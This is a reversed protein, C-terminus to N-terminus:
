IRVRYSSFKGTTKGTAFRSTNVPMINSKVDSMGIAKVDKEWWMTYHGVVGNAYTENSNSAKAINNEPSLADLLLEVYSTYGAENEIGNLKSTMRYLETFSSIGSENIYKMIKLSTNKQNETSSPMWKITTGETISKEYVAESFFGVEMWYGNTLDKPGYYVNEGYSFLGNSTINKQAFGSEVNKYHQLNQGNQLQQVQYATNYTTVLSSYLDFEFLDLGYYERRDNAEKLQTLTKDLDTTGGVENLLSKSSELWYNLKTQDVDNLISTNDKLYEIFDTFSNEDAQLAWQAAAEKVELDQQAAKLENKAQELKNEEATKNNQATTLEQQAKTVANAATQANAQATELKTTATAQQKEIEAVKNQATELESQLNALYTDADQVAQKANAEVTQAQTLNTQAQALQAQAQELAAQNNELEETLADSNANRVAEDYAAQAQDLVSQANQLATQANQLNTTATDVEAQKAAQEALANNLDTQTANAESEAKKYETKATDYAEQAQDVADQKQQITEETVGSSAIENKADELAKTATDVREQASTVNNGKSDVDNEAATVTQAATEDAQTASQVTTQAQAEAQKATDLESEKADLDAKANERNEYAEQLTISQDNSPEVIPTDGEDAMVFIPTQGMMGTMTTASAVVGVLLKEKKM